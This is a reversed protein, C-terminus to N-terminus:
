FFSGGTFIVFIGFSVCLCQGAMLLCGWAILQNAARDTERHSM